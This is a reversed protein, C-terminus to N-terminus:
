LVPLLITVSSVLFSIFFTRSSIWSPVNALSNMWSNLAPPLALNRAVLFFSAECRRQLTPASSLFIILQNFFYATSNKCARDAFLRSILQRGEGSVPGRHKGCVCEASDGASTEQLPWVSATKGYLKFFLDIAQASCCFLLLKADYKKGFCSIVFTAAANGGGSKEYKFCWLPTVKINASALLCKFCWLPTVQHRSATSLYM